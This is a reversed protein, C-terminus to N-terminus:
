KMPDTRRIIHGPRQWLSLIATELTLMTEPEQLIAVLNALTHVSLDKEPSGPIAARTNHLYYGDCAAGLDISLVLLVEM